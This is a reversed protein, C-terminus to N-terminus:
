SRTGSVPRSNKSPDMRRAWSHAFLCGTNQSIFNAQYHHVFIHYIKSDLTWYRRRVGEWEGEGAKELGSMDVDSEEWEVDLGADACQMEVVKTYVDYCIKRDAGLGNFFSFKGDQDM